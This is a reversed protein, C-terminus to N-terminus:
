KEVRKLDILKLNKVLSSQKPAVVEDTAMFSKKQTFVSNKIHIGLGLIIIVLIFEMHKKIMILIYVIQM